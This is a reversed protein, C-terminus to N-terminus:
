AHLAASGGLQGVGFAPGGGREVVEGGGESMGLSCGGETRSERGDLGDDMGIGAVVGGGGVGEV